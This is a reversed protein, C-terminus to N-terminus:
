EGVLTDAVDPKRYPATARLDDFVTRPASASLDDFVSRPATDNLQDFITKADAPITTLGLVAIIALTNLSKM